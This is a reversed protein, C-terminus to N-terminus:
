SCQVCRREAIFINVLYICTNKAEAYIIHLGDDFKVDTLYYFITKDSEPQHMLCTALPSCDSLDEVGGFPSAMPKSSLVTSDASCAHNPKLTPM